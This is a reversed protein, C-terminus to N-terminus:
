GSARAPGDYDVAVVALCDGRQILGPAHRSFLLGSRGARYVAPPRKPDDFAHIRAVPQGAQVEAGLDALMELMGGDEAIVFCDGDPTQMIRTPPEGAEEPSEPEGEIVGFHRLLNTVGRAAVAVSKATVTGSGGLETSIFTRGLEEVATDLMGENDLEQLVLGLPAGFAKVAALTREMHARDELYHMVACPVFDLSRGGSHFDVVVDCLPLLHAYVFDAIMQTVTGDRRGPFVRNMNLGDIPSLRSAGRVAPLNLCPLIIARGRVAEPELSRACNMLAIPGEYEDGHSGGAFLITPGAGNAVVCIPVQVSGWASDNRSHPVTLYGFQKGVAGLDVSVGVRPPKRPATLEVMSQASVAGMEGM